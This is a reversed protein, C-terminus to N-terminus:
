YHLQQITEQPGEEGNELAAAGTQRGVLPVLAEGREADKGVGTTEQTTVKLWESWHKSKYKGSSSHHPADQTPGRDEKSFYSEKEQSGIELDRKSSGIKDRSQGRLVQFHRCIPKQPRETSRGPNPAPYKRKAGVTSDAETITQCTSPSEKKM